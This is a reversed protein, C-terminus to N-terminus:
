KHFTDTDLILWQMFYDLVEQKRTVNYLRNVICFMFYAVTNRSTFRYISNFLDLVVSNM